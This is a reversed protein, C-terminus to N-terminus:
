GVRAISHCGPPRFGGVGTGFAEVEGSVCLPIGFPGLRADRGIGSVAGANCGVMEEFGGLRPKISRRIACDYAWNRLDKLKCASKRRRIM